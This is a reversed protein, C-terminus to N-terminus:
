GETKDLPPMKTYNIKTPKKVDGEMRYTVTARDGVGVENPSDGTFECSGILFGYEIGTNDESVVLMNGAKSVITGTVKYTTPKPEPTNTPVPTPEPKKLIEVLKADPRQSAYGDYTVRVKCGEEIECVGQYLTEDTRVFTYQKGNSLEVTMRSSTLDIVYGTLQKDILPDDEQGAKIIRIATATPVANLDGTYTVEVVADNKVESDAGGIATSSTVRFGYATGSDVMIYVTSSDHSVVTGTVKMDEVQAKEIVTVGTAVAGQAIDGSYTLLVRDNIGVASFDVSGCALIFTSGNDLTIGIGTQDLRVVTGEISKEAKPANPDVIPNGNLDATVAYLAAATDEFTKDANAGACTLSYQCKTPAYFWTAVGTGDAAYKVAIQGYGNVPDAYIAAPTSFEGYVGDIPQMAAELACSAARYTYERGNLTFVIQAIANATGASITEYRQNVSGAPADNMLIPSVASLMEERSSFYDMPNPLGVPEATAEPTPTPTVEAPLQSLVEACGTLMAAILICALMMAVTRKM